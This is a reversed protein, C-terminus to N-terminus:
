VANQARLEALAAADIGLLEALVSATHEGLLPARARLQAPMEEIRIALGRTPIPAQGDPHPLERFMQRHALQPDCSLDAVTQVPAYGVRHEACCREVEARTRAGVFAEFLRNLEDRTAYRKARERFEPDDLLTERGIMRLARRLLGRSGAAIVVWGDLARFSGFPAGVRHRNGNRTAEKGTARYWLPYSDLMTFLADQNSLDIRAGQGSADRGRLAALIAVALFLGGVYDALNTGAKTPEGEPEGTLAMLGSVAQATNDYSPRASLPGDQGYGSLSAFVIRPNAARIVPWDLQWERMRGAAFNEVLVDFHPLLELLLSRGRPHRLDLTISQKNRNLDNFTLSVGRVQDPLRRVEDGIVPQEVKVVRAGLEALLGTAYPGAVVRTLDLIRVGELASVVGAM